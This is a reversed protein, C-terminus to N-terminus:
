HYASGRSRCTSVCEKGVRREETRDGAAIASDALRRRSQKGLPACLDNDRTAPPVCYLGSRRLDPIAGDSQGTIDRFQVMVRAQYLFDPSAKTTEVNEHGISADDIECCGGIYRDCVVISLKRDIRSTDEETYLRQQREQAVAAADHHHSRKGGRFYIPLADNHSLTHLYM